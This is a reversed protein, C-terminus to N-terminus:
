RQCSATPLHANVRSHSAATRLSPISPQFGKIGDLNYDQTLIIIKVREVFASNSVQDQSKGTIFYIDKQNEKMRSVYEKFFAIEDGSASTHFRLPFM